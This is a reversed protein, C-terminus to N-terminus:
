GIRCFQKTYLFLMWGIGLVPFVYYILSDIKPVWLSVIIICFTLVLLILPVFRVMHMDLLPRVTDSTNTKKTSSWFLYTVICAFMKVIM